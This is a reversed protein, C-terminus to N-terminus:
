SAGGSLVRQLDAASVLRRGMIKTSPIVGLAIAKTVFRLSTGCLEAVEEPSYAKRNEPAIKVRSKNEM